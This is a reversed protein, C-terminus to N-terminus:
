PPRAGPLPPAAEDDRARGEEAARLEFWGRSRGTEEDVQLSAKWLQELPVWYPPYKFRAVDLVLASDSPAHYGGIPSFHGGGTRALSM